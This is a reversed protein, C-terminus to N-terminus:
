AVIRLFANARSEPDIAFPTILDADQVFRFSEPMVGVVTYNEEDLKLTHGIIKPDSGFLRVWLNHSMVVAKNGGPRNEEDVLARGIEPQVGLVRFISASVAIGDVREPREIGGLNLAGGTYCAIDDFVETQKQWEVYDAPSVAAQRFRRDTTFATVLRESHDYPFPRLLVPNVVSFMAANAGIGLALALVSALSFAPSKFLMRFGLRIDRVIAGM